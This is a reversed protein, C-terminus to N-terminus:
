ALELGNEWWHTVLSLPLSRLHPLTRVVTSIFLLLKVSLNPSQNRTRWQGYQLSDFVTIFITSASLVELALPRFSLSSHSPPPFSTPSQAPRPKTCGQRQKSKNKGDDVRKPCSKQLHNNRYVRDGSNTLRYEEDQYRCEGGWLVLNSQRNRWVIM